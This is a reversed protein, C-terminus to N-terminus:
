ADSPSARSVVSWPLRAVVAERWDLDLPPSQALHRRAMRLLMPLQGIDRVVLQAGSLLYYADVEHRAEKGTLAVFAAAPFDVQWRAVVPLTSAREVVPSGLAV